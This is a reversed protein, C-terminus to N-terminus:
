VKAPVRHRRSHYWVLNWYDELLAEVVRGEVLYGFEANSNPYLNDSGVYCVDDDAVYFKAHNAPTPFCAFGTPYPKGIKALTPWRYDDESEFECATFCFPAVELRAIASEVQKASGAYKLLLKQLLAMTGTAGSTWSYQAGGGYARLPSVVIKVSLKSNALLAEAIWKCVLHDEEKFPFAPGSGLFVLDQQCLKLSFKANKIITQKAIDSATSVLHSQECRGLGMVRAAFPNPEETLYLGRHGLPVPQALVPLKIAPAFVTESSTSRKSDEVCPFCSFIRVPAEKSDLTKVQVWDTDKCQGPKLTWANLWWGGWNWMYECFVQADYAAKGVVHLSIDHAMPLTAYAAWWLNHGGVIARVGDSAMIKCHNWQQHKISYLQGIFLRPTAAGGWSKIAALLRACWTNFRGEVPVFGLLIRIVVQGKTDHTATKLSQFIMREFEDGEGPADLSVIDIVSRGRVIVKAMTEVLLAPAATVSVTTGVKDFPKGWVRPTDHVAVTNDESILHSASPQKGLATEVLDFLSSPTDMREPDASAKGCRECVAKFSGEHLLSEVEPGKLNL